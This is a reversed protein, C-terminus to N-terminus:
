DEFVGRRVMVRGNVGSKWGSVSGYGQSEGYRAIWEVRVIKDKGIDCIAFDKLFANFQRTAWARSVSMKMIDVKPWSKSKVVEGNVIIKTTVECFAPMLEKLSEIRSSMRRALSGCRFPKPTANRIKLMNKRSGGIMAVMGIHRAKEYGHLESARPHIRQEGKGWKLKPTATHCCYLWTSKNAFHGYFGQEVCCTMGGHKDAVIWGGERPPIRLGFANWAKSDKPHELVGGWCRVAALAKKFCGGDDGLEYQHPNSTSGHYYRGWRECPPHAVVPYPGKYKRADREIDWLDIDRLESYCGDAEVYLAAIM